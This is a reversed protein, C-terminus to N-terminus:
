TLRMQKSKNLQKKRFLKDLYQRNRRNEKIREISKNALQSKPNQRNIWQKRRIKYKVLAQIYQSSNNYYIELPREPKSDKYISM